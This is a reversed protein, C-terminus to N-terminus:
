SDIRPGRVRVDGQRRTWGIRDLHELLPVAYKRSVQLMEKFEAMTLAPHRAFHGALRERLGDWLGSPYFLESTVKVLRRSDVLYRLLDQGLAPTPALRLLESLEPVQYGRSALTREMREALAAQAATLVPASEPPAVLDGSLRLKGEESLRELALDFAAAPLVRALLSRLEGKSAGERLRHTETYRRVEALVRELAQRWAESALMRGDRLRTLSEGAELRLEEVERGSLFLRVGAEEPTLGSLGSARALALLAERDSGSTLATLRARDNPSLRARRPPGPDLVRAGGLTTQPSYSRLVIRDGRAAVIPEELRLQALTEGGPPLPGDHFLVVRGLVESAGLHVRLRARNVLEREASRLLTLRVDVLTTPRLAQPAVVWDGRAADERAVGHLALATRQGAVAEPVSAGHVQVQRVRVPAGRPLLTLADGVRVSGSWLTGTVVTGIGEVSFVRDVPLRSPRGAERPGASAATEDLVRLLEPVGEGTAASVAVVPASALPTSALLATVEERAAALTEADVLDAKTLAVVGRTVGLLEVIALHERTQPMVGEDAAVTLLVLDIGTAGALM